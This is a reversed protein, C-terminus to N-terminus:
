DNGLEDTTGLDLGALAANAERMEDKGLEYGGTLCPGRHSCRTCKESVAEVFRGFRVWGVIKRLMRELRAVDGARRQVDLWAGGRQQGKEYTIKEGKIVERALMRSWHRVDEPREITKTGKKEYPVYDRLHTLKIVDPFQDFRRVGEPLVHGAEHHRMLARLAVHMAARKTPAGGLALWDSLGLPKDVITWDPHEAYPKAAAWWAELLEEPLFIGCSLAHAYFGGEFGHDLQLQHPKQVGTKWDTFALSGDREGHPRYVLDTHGEIYLEGLKAIFGAEVLEIARVHRHLDSFLGFLMEAATNLEDAFDSKGYWVVSRVGTERNFEELVIERITDRNAPVHGGLLNAAFRENRLARAITEHVATGMATKGAITEREIHELEAQRDFAFQMTCAFEGVLTSMHSKHIPDALTGWQRFAWRKGAAAGSRADNEGGMVPLKRAAARSM